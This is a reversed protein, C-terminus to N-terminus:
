VLGPTVRRYYTSALDTREVVIHQAIVVVLCAALAFAATSGTIWTLVTSALKHCCTGASKTTGVNTRTVITRSVM